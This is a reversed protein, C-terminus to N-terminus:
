RPVFPERNYGRLYDEACQYAERSPGIFNVQTPHPVGAADDQSRDYGGHDYCARADGYISPPLRRIQGPQREVPPPAPTRAPRPTATPAVAPPEYRPERTEDPDELASVRLDRLLVAAEVSDDLNGQRYLSLWVGGQDFAADEVSLRVQDNVLLWITPGRARIAVATWDDSVIDTLDARQALITAPEHAVVKRLRVSGQGPRFDAYYSGGSQQSRFGLAFQVRETAAVPRVMVRIEGDVFTLGRVEHGISANTSTETCRGVVKTRISGDIFEGRNNGCSGPRLAGAKALPDELMTRGVAPPPVDAGDEETAAAAGSVLAQPHPEDRASAVPQVLIIICAVVLFRAVVTTVALSGKVAM